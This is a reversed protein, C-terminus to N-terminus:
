KWYNSELEMPLQLTRLAHSHFQPSIKCTGPNMPLSTIYLLLLQLVGGGMGLPQKIGTEVLDRNTVWTVQVGSPIKNLRRKQVWNNQKMGPLIGRHQKQQTKSTELSKLSLSQALNKKSDKWLRAVNRKTFATIELGLAQTLLKARDGILHIVEPLDNTRKSGFWSSM